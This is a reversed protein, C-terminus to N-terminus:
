LISTLITLIHQFPKSFGLGTATLGWVKWCALANNSLSLILLVIYFLGHVRALAVDDRKTTAITWGQHRFIAIRSSVTICSMQPIWPDMIIWSSGHSSWVRDISTADQCIFRGFCRSQWPGNVSSPLDAVGSRVWCLNEAWNWSPKWPHRVFILSCCFSFLPLWFGLLFAPFTSLSHFHSKFNM